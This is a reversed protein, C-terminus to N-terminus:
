VCLVRMNYKRSKKLTGQSTLRLTTIAEKTSCGEGLGINCYSFKSYQKKDLDSVHSQRNKHSKMFQEGFSVILQKKIFRGTCLDTYNVFFLFWREESLKSNSM